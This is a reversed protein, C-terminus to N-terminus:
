LVIKICQFQTFLELTCLCLIDFWVLKHVVRNRACTATMGWRPRIFIMTHAFFSRVGCISVSSSSHTHCGSWAFFSAQFPPTQHYLCFVFMLSRDKPRLRKGKYQTTIPNSGTIRYNLVFTTPCKKSMLSRQSFYMDTHYLCMYHWIRLTALVVWIM